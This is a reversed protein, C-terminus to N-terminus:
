WLQKEKTMQAAANGSFAFSLVMMGLVAIKSQTNMTKIKITVSNSQTTLIM